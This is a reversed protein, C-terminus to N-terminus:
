LVALIYPHGPLLHNRWDNELTVLDGCKHAMEVDEPLYLASPTGVQQRRKLIDLMLASAKGDVCLKGM